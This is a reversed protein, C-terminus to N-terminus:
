FRLRLASPDLESHLAETLSSKSERRGLYRGFVFCGLLTATTQISLFLAAILLGNRIDPCSLEQTEGSPHTLLRGMVLFYKVIFLLHEDLIGKKCTVADLKGTGGPNLVM